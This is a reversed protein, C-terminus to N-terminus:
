QSRDLLAGMTRSVPKGDRCKRARIEAETLWRNRPDAEVTARALDSLAVEFLEMTYATECKASDSWEVFEVHALPGEPVTADAGERLGLEEAVERVVCQRYSEDPRKHGAVFNYCRWHGNWQALWLTEGAEERRIVAVAALSQRM